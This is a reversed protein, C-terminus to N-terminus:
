LSDTKLPTAIPVTLAQDSYVTVTNTCPIGGTAPFTCIPITAGAKLQGTPAQVIITYPVGQASAIAPLLLFAIVGLWKKM